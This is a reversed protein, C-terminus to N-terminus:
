SGAGVGGEEKRGNEVIKEFLEASDRRRHGEGGGEEARVPPTCPRFIQNNPRLSINEGGSEGSSGQTANKTGSSRRKVNVDRDKKRKGGVKEEDWDDEEWGEEDVEIIGLDLDDEEERRGGEERGGEDDERDGGVDTGGYFNGIEDKESIFRDYDGEGDELSYAKRELWLSEPAKFENRFLSVITLIDALTMNEISPTSTSSRMSSSPLPSATNVSGFDTEVTETKRM